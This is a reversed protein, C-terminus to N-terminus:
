FTYTSPVSEFEYQPPPSESSRSGSARSMDDDDSAPADQLGLYGGAREYEALSTLTDGFERHRYVSNLVPM